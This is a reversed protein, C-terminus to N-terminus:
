CDWDKEHIATLLAKAAAPDKRITEVSRQFARAKEFCQTNIRTVLDDIARGYVDRGWGVVWTQHNIEYEQMLFSQIAAKRHDVTGTSDAALYTLLPDDHVLPEVLSISAYYSVASDCSDDALGKCLVIVRLRYKHPEAVTVVDVDHIDRLAEAFAGEFLGGTEETVALAIRLHQQQAAQAQHPVILLFVLLHLLARALVKPETLM